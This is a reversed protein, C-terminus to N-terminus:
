SLFHLVLYDIWDLDVFFMSLYGELLIFTLHILKRAAAKITHLIQFATSVVSYVQSNTYSYINWIGRPADLHVLRHHLHVSILHSADYPLEDFLLYVSCVCLARNFSYKVLFIFIRNNELFM